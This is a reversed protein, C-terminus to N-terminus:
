FVSNNFYTQFVFSDLGASNCNLCMVNSLKSLRKLKIAVGLYIM